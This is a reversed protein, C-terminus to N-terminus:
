NLPTLEIHLNSWQWNLSPVEDPNGVVPFGTDITLPNDAAGITVQNVNPVSALTAKVTNDSLDTITLVWTQAGANYDLACRYTHGPQGAFPREVSIKQPHTLGIGHRALAISRNPGRFYLMGLMNFNRRVVFWFILHKGTPDPAYFQALTVDLRMTIRSYTGLPASFTQRGVANAATATFFTGAADFCTVGSGCGGPPPQQGPPALTSSGNAAPGLYVMEGTASDSIEAFAFFNQTCSIMAAVDAISGGAAVYGSLVNSFSRHSLPKMTITASTIQTGDSQVLGITCQSATQGLNVLTLDTTRTGALLMGLLGLSSNAAIMNASSVAPLTVGIPAGTSGGVLRASYYVGSPGSLEYLGQFTATPALLVTRKAQVVVPTPQGTRVTGDTATDITVVNVTADQTGNNTVEIQPAVGFTGLTSTGPLPVYVTGASALSAILLGFVFLQTSLSRKMREKRPKGGILHKRLM